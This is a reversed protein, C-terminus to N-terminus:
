KFYYWRRWRQTLLQEEEKTLNRDLYKKLSCYSVYDYIDWTNFVKRYHKGSVVNHENRVKKNATRKAIKRGRRNDKAIPTKKYSRSM